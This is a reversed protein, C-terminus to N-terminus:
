LYNRILCCQYLLHSFNSSLIVATLGLVLHPLNIYTNCDYGLLNDLKYLLLTWIRLECESWEHPHSMLWPWFLILTNPESILAFLSFLKLFINRIYCIGHLFNGLVESLTTALLGYLSLNVM